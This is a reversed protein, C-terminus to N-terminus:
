LPSVSARHQLPDSSALHRHCGGEAHPPISLPQAARALNKQPDSHDSHDFRSAEACPPQHPHTAHESQPSTGIHAQSIMDPLRRQVVRLAGGSRLNKDFRPHIHHMNISMSIRSQVHHLIRTDRTDKNPVTSIDVRHVALITERDM